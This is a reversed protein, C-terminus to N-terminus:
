GIRLKQDIRYTEWRYKASTCPDAITVSDCTFGAFIYINEELAVAQQDWTHRFKAQQHCLHHCCHLCFIFSITVLKEGTIQTIALLM